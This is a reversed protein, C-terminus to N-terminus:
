GQDAQGQPRKQTKEAKQVIRRVEKKLQAQRMLLAYTNETRYPRKKPRVFRSQIFYHLVKELPQGNHEYMGFLFCPLMVLIMCIAAVSTPLATKLAFFLPLGILLGGGFCILQRKTLNFLMKTKVQSLDKPIPVFAM